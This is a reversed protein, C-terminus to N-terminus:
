NMIKRQIEDFTIIRKIATCLQEDVYDKHNMNYDRITQSASSELM